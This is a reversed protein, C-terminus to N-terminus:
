YVGEEADGNISPEQTTSANGKRNGGRRSRSKNNVPTPPPLMETTVPTTIDSPPKEMAALAASNRETDSASRKRKTSMSSPLAPLSPHHDALNTFLICLHPRVYVEDDARKRKKRGGPGIEIVIEEAVDDEKADGEKDAGTAEEVTTGAEAATSELLRQLQEEYAADRSNM